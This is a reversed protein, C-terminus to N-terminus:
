EVERKVLRWTQEPRGTGKPKPVVKVGVKEVLGDDKRLQNLRSRVSGIDMKSGYRQLVELIDHATCTTVLLRMADLVEAKRAPMDVSKAAVRSTAPDSSRVPLISEGWDFLSPETMTM